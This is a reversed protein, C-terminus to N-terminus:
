FVAHVSLFVVNVEAETRVVVVVISVQINADVAFVNIVNSKAFQEVGKQLRDAGRTFDSVHRSLSYRLM